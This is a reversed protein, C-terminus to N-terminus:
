LFQRRCSPLIKTQSRPTRSLWGVLSPLSRQSHSRHNACCSVLLGPKTPGLIGCCSRKTVPCQASAKPCEAEHPLSETTCHCQGLPGLSRSRLLTGLIGCGLQPHPRETPCVSLRPRRSSPDELRPCLAPEPTPEGWPSLCQANPMPSDTGENRLEGPTGAWLSGHAM